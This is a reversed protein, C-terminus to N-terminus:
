LIWMFSLEPIHYGRKFTDYLMWTPWYYNVYSDKIGFVFVHNKWLRQELYFAGTFGNFYNKQQSVVNEGSEQKSNAVIVLEGKLTFAMKKLKYGLSLNPYHLWIMARNDFGGQRLQGYVYAVDWGVNFSFDRHRYSYHPGLALQNSVVLTTLDAELSFGVPLGFTMHFDAMPAQIANELLDQPPKVILLGAGIQFGWKKLQHPYRIAHNTIDFTDGVAKDQANLAAVTCVILLLTM